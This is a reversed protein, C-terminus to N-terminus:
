PPRAYTIKWIDGELVAAGGKDRAIWVFYSAPTEKIEWGGAGRKPKEPESDDREVYNRTQWYRKCSGFKYPKKALYKAVYRAANRASTCKTVWVIPAKIWFDMFTSLLEQDIWPVRCLIHLHPELKKTCEFVAFYPISKYGHYAKAEIVFQRWAKVLNRAREAPWLGDNPNVTITVFIQPYGDHANRAVERKRKPACYDCGWSRCCLPAAYMGGDFHKVLCWDRCLM